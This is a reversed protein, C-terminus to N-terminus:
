IYHVRQILWPDLFLYRYKYVHIYSEKHIHIYRDTHNKELKKEGTKGKM